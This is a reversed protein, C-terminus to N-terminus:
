LHAYFVKYHILCLTKTQLINSLQNVLTAELEVLLVQEVVFMLNIEIDINILDISNYIFTVLLSNYRSDEIM